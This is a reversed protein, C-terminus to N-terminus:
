EVLKELQAFNMESQIFYETPTSKQWKQYTIISYNRWYDSIEYLVFYFWININIDHQYDFNYYQYFFDEIKKKFKKNLGKM